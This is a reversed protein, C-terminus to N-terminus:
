PRSCPVSGDSGHTRVPDCMSVVSFAPRKSPTTPTSPAISATAPSEPERRDISTTANAPSSGRKPVPQM